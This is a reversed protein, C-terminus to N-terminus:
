LLQLIFNITDRQVRTLEVVAGHRWNSLTLNIVYTRVHMIIHIIHTSIYMKYTRM